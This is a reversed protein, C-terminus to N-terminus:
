ESDLPVVRRPMPSRPSSNAFDASPSPRRASHAPRATIKREAANLDRALILPTVEMLDGSEAAASAFQVVLPAAEGVRVLGRGPTHLSIQVPDRSGMLAVAEVPDAMRMAIRINAFSRLVHEISRSLQEAAIVLHLGLHRSRDALDILQPLFAAHRLMVDDIDDVVIVTPSTRAARLWSPPRGM